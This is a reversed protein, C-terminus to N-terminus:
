IVNKVNKEGNGCVSQHNLNLDIYFIHKFHKELNLNHLQLYRM